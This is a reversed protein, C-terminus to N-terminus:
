LVDWWRHNRQTMWFKFWICWLKFLPQCDRWSVMFTCKTSCKVLYWSLPVNPLPSIAKHMRLKEVLHIHTTLNLDQSSQVQFVCFLNSPPGWLTQLCDTSSLFTKGRDSIFGWNRHWGTQLKAVTSIENECSSYLPKQKICQMYLM